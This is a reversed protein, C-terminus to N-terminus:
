LYLTNYRSAEKERHEKEEKLRREREKQMKELKIDTQSCHWEKLVTEVTSM